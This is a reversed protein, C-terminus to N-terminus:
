KKKERNKHNKILEYIKRETKLSPRSHNMEIRNLSVRSINIRKAFEEQTLKM